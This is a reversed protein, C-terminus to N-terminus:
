RSSLLVSLENGEFCNTVVDKRGDSNLDGTAVQYAGPGAKMPTGCAHCFKGDEDAFIVELGDATATVLVDNGAYGVNLAVIGYAERGLDFPTGASPALSRSSNQELVTIQQASTLVIDRLKDGNIDALTKVYSRAPLPRTLQKAPVFVNQEDALMITLQAPEGADLSTCAAIIDPRADGNLDDVVHTYDHFGAPLEVKQSAAFAGTSNGYFLEITKQRRNAAVLDLHGDRNADLLALTPKWGNEFMHAVPMALESREEFTGDSKGLLVHVLAADSTRAVIAVDPKHDGNLDGVALASPDYGLEMTTRSAIPFGGKGDSALVTVKGSLPYSVLVDVKGDATFDAMALQGSQPDIKIPAGHTFPNWGALAVSSAGALFGLAM